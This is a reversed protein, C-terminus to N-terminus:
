MSVDKSPLLLLLLSALDAGRGDVRRGLGVVLGVWDPMGFNAPAFVIAERAGLPMGGEETPIKSEGCSGRRRSELTAKKWSDAARANQPPHEGRGLPPPNQDSIRLRLDDLKWGNLSPPRAPLNM